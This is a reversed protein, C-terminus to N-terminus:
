KWRLPTIDVANREDALMLSGDQVTAQLQMSRQALVQLGQAAEAPIRVHLLADFLARAGTRQEIWTEPVM